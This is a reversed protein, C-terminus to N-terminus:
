GLYFPKTITVNHAPKEDDLGMDDGMAFSGAPILVMELTTDGGLEISKQAPVGLTKDAGPQRSSSQSGCGVALTATVGM